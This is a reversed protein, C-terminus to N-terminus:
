RLNQQPFINSLVSGDDGGGDSRRGGYGVGTGDDGGGNEDGGADGSGGGGGGGGDGFCGIMMGVAMLLDAVGAADEVVEVAPM